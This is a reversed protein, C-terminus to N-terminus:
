GIRGKAGVVHSMKAKKPENLRPVIAALRPIQDLVPSVLDIDSEIM